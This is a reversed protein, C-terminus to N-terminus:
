NGDVLTMYAYGSMTTNDAFEKKPLNSKLIPEKYYSLYTVLRYLRTNESFKFIIDKNYDSDSESVNENNYDFVVYNQESTMMTNISDPTFCNLNYDDIVSYYMRDEVVELLHKYNEDEKDFVYFAGIKSSKFYIRDPEKKYIYPNYTSFKQYDDGYDAEDKEIKEKLQNIENKSMLAALSTQKEKEKILQAEDMLTKTCFGGAFGIGILVISLIIFIITTKRTKIKM